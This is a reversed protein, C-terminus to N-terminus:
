DKKWVIKEANLRGLGPKSCKIEEEENLKAPKIDQLPNAYCNRREAPNGALIMRSPKAM